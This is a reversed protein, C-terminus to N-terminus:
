ISFNKSQDFTENTNNNNSQDNFSLQSPDIQKLGYGLQIGGSLKNKGTNGVAITYAGSLHIQFTGLQADGSQDYNIDVGMGLDEIHLFDHADVSFAATTYPVSISAWQSRYIGTFRYSGEFQGTLAPNLVLPAQNFQSFHFDQAYGKEYSIGWIISTFLLTYTVKKQM